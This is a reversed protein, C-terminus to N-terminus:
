VSVCMRGATTEAELNPLECFPEFVDTIFQLYRRMDFMLHKSDYWTSDYQKFFRGISKDGNDVLYM